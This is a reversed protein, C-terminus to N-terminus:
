VNIQQILTDFADGKVFAYTKKNIHYYKIWGKNVLATLDTRATEKSVGYMSRLERITVVKERDEKLWQLVVTQRENYGPLKNMGSGAKERTIRLTFDRLSKYAMQISQIYFQIFYGTNNADTQSQVISRHYQLNFKSIINSPSIFAAVWYKKKLLYLQVLLRAMRGNADKFPRITVVLYHIICAKVLPHIFFPAVDDNYIGLVTEMLPAVLRSDVPKYGASTDVSSFDVKNNTRYQGIGKLKITDKTLAQHLQLLLAETLPEEKKSFALQLSRYINICIQENVNQPSRKKLLMERAAKKSVVAGALQASAISEDLLANTQHRHVHKSEQLVEMDRGGALDIDLRHLQVEMTNSIWWKIVSDGIPLRRTFGQEREGTVQQWIDERLGEVPLPMDKFKDWHVYNNNLNSILKRLAHNTNSQNAQEIKQM